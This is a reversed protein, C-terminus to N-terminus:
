REFEDSREKQKIRGTEEMLNRLQQVAKQSFAKLRENTLRAYEALSLRQTTQERFTQYQPSELYERIATEHLAKSAELSSVALDESDQDQRRFAGLVGEKGNVGQETKQSGNESKQDAYEDIDDKLELTMTELRVTPDATLFASNSQMQGKEAQLDRNELGEDISGAEAAGYAPTLIEILANEHRVKRNHDGKSTEIGRKELNGADEGLHVQPHKNIGQAKYSKLSVREMRGAIELHQNTHAEWSHRWSNLTNKQNWHRNKKGFEGGELPRLTLLIHAHPNKFGDGADSEHIAFDAIMGKSTFNDQIYGRVLALNQEQSLERPLAAIINRALQADKRKESAEVKNWLIARDSAWSPAGLPTMIEAHIVDEKRSYDFTKGVRDDDLVEGSRYAAAAVVSQGKSRAIFEVRFHPNPM